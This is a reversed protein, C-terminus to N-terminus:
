SPQMEWRDVFVKLRKEVLILALKDVFDKEKHSYSIFISM